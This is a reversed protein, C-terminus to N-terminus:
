LQARPSVAFGTDRLLLVINFCEFESSVGPRTADQDAADTDTAAPLAPELMWRTALESVVMEAAPYECVVKIASCADDWMSSLKKSLLGFCFYPILRDLWKKSSVETYMQALKRIEMSMTRATQLTLESEEIEIATSVTNDPFGARRLLEQLIKLSLLRSQHSPSSLNSLLSTVFSELLTEQCEPLEAVASIYALTAELFPTVNCCEPGWKCIGIWLNPDLQKTQAALQTYAFLGQGRAFTALEDDDTSTQQLYQEAHCHLAELLLPTISPQTAISM